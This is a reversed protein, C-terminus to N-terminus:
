EIGSKIKVAVGKKLEMAESNTCCSIGFAILDEKNNIILCPMGPRLIERVSLIFGHMVNRGKSVFPIADDNIKVLPIKCM